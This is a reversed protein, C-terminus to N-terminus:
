AHVGRLTREVADGFFWSTVIWEIDHARSPVLMSRIARGAYGLNRLSPRQTALHALLRLCHRMFFAVGPSKKHSHGIHAFEPYARRIVDIHLQQDIVHRLPISSLFRWVDRDLFPALTPEGAPRLLGFASAAINVRTRNWFYYSGVPNAADV